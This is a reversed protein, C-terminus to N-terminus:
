PVPNGSVIGIELTFNPNPNKSGIVRVAMAASTTRPLEQGRHTPSNPNTLLLWWAMEKAESGNIRMETSSRTTISGRRECLKRAMLRSILDWLACCLGGGCRRYV